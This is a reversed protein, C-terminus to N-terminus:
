KKDVGDKIKDGVWGEGKGWLEGLMFQATKNREIYAAARFSREMGPKYYHRRCGQGCSRQSSSFWIRPHFHQRRLVVFCVYGIANKKRPGSQRSRQAKIIDEFSQYTSNYASSYPLVFHMKWYRSADRLADQFTDYTTRVSM